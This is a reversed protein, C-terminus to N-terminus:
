SFYALVLFFFFFLREWPIISNCERSCNPAGTNEAKSVRKAVLICRGLRRLADVRCSIERDEWRLAGTLLRRRPFKKRRDAVRIARGHKPPPRAVICIYWLTFVDLPFLRLLLPGLSLIVSKFLKKINYYEIGSSYKFLSSIFCIFRRKFMLLYFTYKM